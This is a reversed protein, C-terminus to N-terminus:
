IKGTPPILSFVIATLAVVTVSRYKHEKQHLQEEILVSLRSDKGLPNFDDCM